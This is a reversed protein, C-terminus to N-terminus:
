HRTLLYIAIGILTDLPICIALAILCGKAPNGKNDKDDDNITDM